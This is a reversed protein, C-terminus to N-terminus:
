EQDKLKLNYSIMTDIQEAILRDQEAKPLAYFAELTRQDRRKEELLSKQTPPNKPPIVEVDKGFIQEIASYISPPPKKKM